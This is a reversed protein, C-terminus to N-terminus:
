ILSVERKGAKFSGEARKGKPAVRKFYDDNIDAVNVGDLPVTASTALVYAQNVRKLPVGNLKHPGAVLLLGSPLRKLLVVRKGRYKGSLLILVKGPTLSKAVAQPHPKSSSRKYPATEDDSPYWTNSRNTM